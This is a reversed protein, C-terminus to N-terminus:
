PFIKVFKKPLSSHITLNEQTIPHVFSLLSAHLYLGNGSLILGKSGYDKDGLIPHGLESLQKRLQHRRGTLPRLEVLNLCGFRESVVTKLVRYTSRSAKGDIPSDVTGELEMQGITVAHYVKEMERYEFLRNLAMVSSSTKGILLAGSTPYDLRHIPEAFKLADKENSPKLNSQLANSITWHKNGSVEIGAPKEIVALHDDEFLVELKLDISPRENTEAVILEIKEGGVLHNGTAAVKGDIRVWGKDIAKKM